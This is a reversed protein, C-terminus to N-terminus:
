LVHTKDKDATVHWHHAFSTTPRASLVSMDMVWKSAGDDTHPSALPAVYHSEGYDNWTVIEVFNPSLTLIDNWRNFWLEDGPFVWNKSYSVEAGFHTSFWGSAALWRFSDDATIYM